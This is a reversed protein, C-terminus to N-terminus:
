PAEHPLPAPGPPPGGLGFYYNTGFRLEIASLNSNIGSPFADDDQALVLHGVLAAEISTSPLNKLFREAGFQVTAGPYLGRHLRLSEPDKLVKRHNQVWVRYVGPGIGAHYVWWDSRIVYQLQASVPVLLTLYDSKDQDDPFNLDGFPAPYRSGYAAWTFGPSVQLRLRDSFVYRFQAAFSFRMQAGASYADFWDAGFARDFRFYSVGALGGIGGKGSEYGPEAAQSFSATMLMAATALGVWRARNKM